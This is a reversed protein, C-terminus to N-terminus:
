IWGDPTIVLIDDGLDYVTGSVLPYDDEDGDVMTTVEIDELYPALDDVHRGAVQLIAEGTGLLGSPGIMPLGEISAWNCLIGTNGYIVLGSERGTLDQLNTILKEEKELGLGKRLIEEALISMAGQGGRKAAEVRLAIATEQSLYVSIKIKEM